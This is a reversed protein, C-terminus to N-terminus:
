RQDRMDAFADTPAAFRWGLEDYLRTSDLTSDTPRPATQGLEATTIPEVLEPDYGFADALTRTFEYRSVSRPGAAHYLGDFGRDTVEVIARALDPAYTPASIQDDVIDLSNGAELEGLAWTAFNSRRLGYVVSTRFVVHDDPIMAAQEGGYKTRAYYNTPAVPDAERFPADAPDGAFVYDTSLYVFTADVADAATAANYTGVANVAFSRRRERECEDVAHFAATDIVVDPNYERIISAVEDPDTKDLRLSTLKTPETRHTARVDHGRDRCIEVVNGGVLGSGGIVLVDM